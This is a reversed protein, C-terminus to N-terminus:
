RIVKLGLLSVLAMGIIWTSQSEPIIALPTYDVLRRALDSIPPVFMGLKEQPYGLRHMYYWWSGVVLWGNFLAIMVDIAVGLSRSPPWQGSFTLTEGAYMAVVAGVIITTYLGLTVLLPDLGVILALRDAVRYLIGGGLDFALLMGVFGITAGLERPFRRAIGVFAFLAWLTLMFWEIPVM